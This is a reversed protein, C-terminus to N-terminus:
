GFHSGAIERSPKLNINSDRPFDRIKLRYYYATKEIMKWNSRHLYQITKSQKKSAFTRRRKWRGNFRARRREWGFRTLRMRKLTESHNKPKSTKNKVENAYVKRMVRNWPIKRMVREPKARPLAFGRTLVLQPLLM